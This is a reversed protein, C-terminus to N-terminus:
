RAIRDQVTITVEVQLNVFSAAQESKELEIKVEVVRRDTDAAPDIDFASNRAVMRGVQTVTGKLSSKLALSEITATQGQQLRRVETEYVEAIAMMHRTDGLLLLPQMGVVEQPHAVVKLVQGSKEARLVTHKLREEAVKLSAELSQLPIEKQARELGAKLTEVQAHAARVNLEHVSNIKKLQSRAARLEARAQSVLLQKDELEQQPVSDPKQSHIRELRALKHEASGLQEELSGVKTEQAQIDLPEGVQVQQLHIRAEEIQTSLAATVAALREKAEQLQRDALDREAQRDTQSELLALIENKEVFDGEKVKVEALRDAGPVAVAIVGGTPELRGRAKVTEPEPTPVAPSSSECGALLALLLLVPLSQGANKLPHITM